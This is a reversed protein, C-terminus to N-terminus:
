FPSWKSVDLSKLNESKATLYLFRDADNGLNYVINKCNQMCYLETLYEIYTATKNAVSQRNFSSVSNGRILQTTPSVQSIKWTKPSLNSFETILQLDGMVFVLLDSKGNGRSIAKVADLYTQLPISRGRIPTHLHVGVDYSSIDELGNYNIVDNIAVLVNPNWTLIKRAETRIEPIAKTSLFQSVRVDNRPRLVTVMPRMESAYSLGNLPAFTEQLLAYNPSVPNSKDYVILDRNNSQAYMYSYLFSNFHTSFEGNDLSFFYPRVKPGTESPKQRDVQLWSTM